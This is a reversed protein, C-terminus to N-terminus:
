WGVGKAKKKKQLQKSVAYGGGLLAPILASGCVLTTPNVSSKKQITFEYSTDQGGIRADAPTLKIYYVGDLPVIWEMTTEGDVTAPHVSGLLTTGNTDYLEITAASALAAPKSFFSYKEGQLAQFSVWDVDGVPCWNHTQTVDAESPAATLQEDDGPAAGEFGDDSCGSNIYTATEANEPYDETTGILDIARIRFEFTQDPSGWFLVQRVDKGLEEPWDQWEGNQQRWQLNFHDIDDAGSEVGWNLMVATSNSIQPLAEMYSVPPVVGQMVTFPQTITASGALNLAEITLAYEGVALQGIEWSGGTQWDLANSYGNDATLTARTDVGAETTWSATLVTDTTIATPLTVSPPTPPVIRDVVKMSAANAEGIPNDALNDDGDQILEVSGKFGADPYLLASVQSGVLISRTTNAKIQALTNMDSYEGKELIQCNGQFEAEAFVAVQTLTPVCAPPLPPCKYSKTLETLGQTGKSYKGAKDLVVISLFFKGDPIRAQCLDIQTTFPSTTLLSGIPKWEGTVSYMLQGNAIGTDDKMWGSVNVTPSTIKSYAAPSTIGGTPTEIDNNGSVYRDGSMCQTGFQPFAQAESCMRPRGGNITVDDFTIDVSRGWYTTTSTHVHFHLHHGTSYGTDDANGIFQGQVVRAGVVRLAAPISDQALHLYVQYTTPSTTTDELVIYNANTTNGNAYKWVVYKVTGAKAAHIPFMTGNAFDFAYLCDTPCSKYTYVHGISGSLRVTQGYAWPLKYGHFVSAGKDAQQIAPMYHQKEDASLMDDPVAMLVQAFNSDVQFTLQWPNVLDATKQAIVLGPEGPQVYGKDKDVLAIWVLALNGDKSFQVHDLSVNFVIFSLVDERGAVAKQIQNYLEIERPDTLTKPMPMQGEETKGEEPLVTCATFFLLGLVALMSFFRAIWSRNKFM